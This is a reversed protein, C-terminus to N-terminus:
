RPKNLIAGEKFARWAHIHTRYHGLLISLIIVGILLSGMLVPFFYEYKGTISNLIPDVLTKSKEMMSVALVITLSTIFFGLVTSVDQLFAEAREIRNDCIEIFIEVDTEQINPINKKFYNFDGSFSYWALLFYRVPNWGIRLITECEKILENVDM